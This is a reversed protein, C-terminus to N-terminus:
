TRQDQFDMKDARGPWHLSTRLNQREETSQRGTQNAQLGARRRV